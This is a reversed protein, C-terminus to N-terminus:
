IKMRGHGPVKSPLLKPGSGAVTSRRSMDAVGSKTALRSMHRKLIQQTKFSIGYIKCQCSPGPHFTKHKM